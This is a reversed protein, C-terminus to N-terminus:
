PVDVRAAADQHRVHPRQAAGLGPLRRRPLPHVLHEVVDELGVVTGGIAKKGFSDVRNPPCWQFDFSSLLLVPPFHSIPALIRTCTEHTHTRAEKGGVTQGWIPGGVGPDEVNNTLYTDKSVGGTARWM